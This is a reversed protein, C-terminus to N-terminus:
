HPGGDQHDDYGARASHFLAFFLGASVLLSMVGGAAYAAWGFASIDVGLERWQLYVLYGVGILAAAALVIILRASM